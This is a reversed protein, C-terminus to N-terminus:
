RVATDLRRRAGPPSYPLLRSALGCATALGALVVGHLAAPRAPDLATRARALSAFACDPDAPVWRDARWPRRSFAPILYGAQALRRAVDHEATVALFMLWDRAPHWDRERLVLDFVHRALGDSPHPRGAITVGDACVRIASSLVLEALLAGALGIGIARPQLFPRGSVDHHALLYLDDALMGTGTLSARCSSLEPPVVPGSPPATM